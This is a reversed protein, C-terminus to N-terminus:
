REGSTFEDLSYDESGDTGEDEVVESILEFGEPNQVDLTKVEDLGFLDRDKARKIRGVRAVEAQLNEHLTGPEDDLVALDSLTVALVSISSSQMLQAAIRRADSTVGQRSVFLITDTQLVNAIGVAQHLHSARVPSDIAPCIVQWRSFTTRERDFVACVGSLQQDRSQWGVFDLDLLLGIKTAVTELVEETPTDSQTAQLAHELESFSKRLADRPVGVRQSIDELVPDLVDADFADTTWLVNPAGDRHEWEIYGLEELPDLVQVGINMQAIEISFAEEAAQRVTNNAVTGKPNVIALTRLFALQEATLQDLALVEDRSIGVLQDLKSKDIDYTSIGTNVVGAKALWARMQSWHNSTAGVNIGYRDRLEQKINANTTQRGEAQLDAIIELVKRGHRNKLIHEAFQDYLTEPDDRLNFLKKGVKTFQFGDDVIGYGSDAELGFRVNEARTKPDPSDSFFQNAVAHDFQNPDGEYADVMELVVVLEEEDDDVSLQAPGFADGFPLEINNNSM